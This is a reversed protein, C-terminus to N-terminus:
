KKIIKLEPFCVIFSGGQDLYKQHNEIINKSHIWALIILYDPSNEYIYSTPRVLIHDGPSFKGQKELNDDVIYQIKDGIEMQTILTTGSRAAGFGAIIKKQKQIKEFLEKINKKTLLLNKYFNNFTKINTLQSKEEIDLSKEVSINKKHRGGKFQVVGILSGGQINNRSVDIIEMNFKNLFLILPKLSHYSHHEHFITGLLFKELVDLLYSIEFVFISNNDMLLKIGEMIESLNDMHAFANNATVIKAKGYTKCIEIALKKNFFKPITEIGDKTAKAAIETAPDVGLVRLDYNKFFKLLTGDNSGIDVVLDKSSPSYKQYIEKAYKEFHNVMGKSRGSAYTYDNYLFNPDIIDLIQVHGCDNCMYLDLPAILEKEHLQNKSLYKEAVPTPALPVALVLRKSECLRCIKRKSHFNKM